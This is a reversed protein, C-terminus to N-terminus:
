THNHACFLLLLDSLLSFFCPTSLLVLPSPRASSRRRTTPARWHHSVLLLPQESALCLLEEMPCPSPRLLCSAADEGPRLAGSADGRTPDPRPLASPRCAHLSPPTTPLPGVPPTPCRRRASPRRVDVIRPNSDERNSSQSRSVVQEKHQEEEVGAHGVSRGIWVNHHGAGVDVVLGLPGDVGLFAAHPPAM